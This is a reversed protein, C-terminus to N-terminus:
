TDERPVIGRRLDDLRNHRRRWQHAEEHASRLAAELEVVRAERVKLAVELEDNRERLSRIVESEIYWILRGLAGVVAISGTIGTIQEWEM